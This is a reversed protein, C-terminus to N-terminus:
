KNLFAIFSKESFDEIEDSITKCFSIGEKFFTFEWFRIEDDVAYTIKELMKKIEDVITKDIDQKELYENVDDTIKNYENFKVDPNREIYYHELEHINNEFIDEVKGYVDAPKSKNEKKTSVKFTKLLDYAVGDKFGIKYSDVLEIDKQAFYLNKLQEDAIGTKLKEAIQKEISKHKKNDALHNQDELRELIFNDTTENLKQKEKTSYDINEM